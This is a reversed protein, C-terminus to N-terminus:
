SVGVIVKDSDFLYKNKLVEWDIPIVGVFAIGSDKMERMNSVVM